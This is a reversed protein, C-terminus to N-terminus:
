QAKTTSAKPQLPRYRNTRVQWWGHQGQSQAVTTVRPQNLDIALGGTRELLSRDAKLARPKCSRPLWRDAIVIDVQACVAALEREPAYDRGRSLLLSWQKGGRDLDVLCYATNCRAGPWQDVLGVEGQMGAAELLNDRVFDSRGERLVMLGGGSDVIGVTRGDGSVLLDPPRLAALSAAAILAAMLGILRMKGRWLALWLGGAAFLLIQWLGMAPLLTVAGPRSATWHALGLLLDLSKGVLWWVPAGVGILDSLLALAILPMSVFTTLPIAIVNALAGYVGARHFHFLGIPMLALEIVVGTLVLMTLNRLGRRWWPEIRPALFARAPAANHLAIIAIVSVFSMQFGPSVVAEPWFLMVLLAGIALMRMSLPERGLALALMV